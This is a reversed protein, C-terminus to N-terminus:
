PLRNFIDYSQEVAVINNKFVNIYAITVIGTSTTKKNMSVIYFVLKFLLMYYM